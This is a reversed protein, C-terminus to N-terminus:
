LAMFITTMVHRRRVPNEKAMAVCGWVVVAGDRPARCTILLMQPYPQCGPVHVDM